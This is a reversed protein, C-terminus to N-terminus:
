KRGFLCRYISPSLCLLMSKLLYKCSKKEVFLLKKYKIPFPINNRVAEILCARYFRSIYRKVEENKSHVWNREWMLEACLIAQKTRKEIATESTMLSGSHVNYFYCPKPYVIAKGAKDLFDFVWLRDEGYSITTDITLHYKSIVERKYCYAYLAGFFLYNSANCYHTLLDWGCEFVEEKYYPSKTINGGWNTNGPFFVCDANNGWKQIYKDLDSLVDNDELWDDSDCFMIYEGKSLEMGKNRARSPGSNPISYMHLFSYEQLYKELIQPSADTSGDNICLVEYNDFSQRCISDLCKSLHKESNFIPIIISFRLM